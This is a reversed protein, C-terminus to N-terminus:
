ALPTEDISGRLEEISRFVESRARTRQLEQESFGGTLM